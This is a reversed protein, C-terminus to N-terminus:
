VTKSLCFIQIASNKCKLASHLFLRLFNIISSHCSIGLKRPYREFIKTNKVRRRKNAYNKLFPLPTHTSLLYHGSINVFFFELMKVQVCNYKLRSCPSMMQLSMHCKGMQRVVQLPTGVWIYQILRDSVFLYTFFHAKFFYFWNRVPDFIVDESKLYTTKKM